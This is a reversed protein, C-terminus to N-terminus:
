ALNKDLFEKVGDFHKIKIYQEKFAVGNMEGMTATEGKPIFVKNWGFGSDGRPEQAITGELSSYFLELENGDYYAFSSSAVARRKPDIDALRCLKELGIEELFWKIFTGPLQGMASIVLSTDEVIVPSKLIKYAAKAKATVVEELSLSQIEPVDVLQHDIDHGVLETFYKAKHANGTVYTIRSV